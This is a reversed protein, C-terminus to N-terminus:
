KNTELLEVLGIPTFLFAVRRNDFLIAEKPPSVLIAHKFSEIAKTINDVEYCIHYYTQQKKIFESVLPGSVLELVVSKTTILVLEANQNPDYITNTSAIVEFNDNVFSLCKEIDNTAIGIHHFNM